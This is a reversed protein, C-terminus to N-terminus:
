QYLVSQLQHSPLLFDIKFENSYIVTVTSQLNLIEFQM